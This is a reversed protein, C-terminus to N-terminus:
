GSDIYSGSAPWTIHRCWRTAALAWSRQHCLASLRRSYVPCLRVATARSNRRSRGMPGMALPRSVVAM